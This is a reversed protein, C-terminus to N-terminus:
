FIVKMYAKERLEKIWSSYRKNVEDRYLINYIADRAEELRKIKGGRREVLNIIQIGSSKIVPDSVDGPSMDKIIKALEQDLQSAKFFGLDGGDEAGPGESFEKALKSFDEGNKLRLLIERAKQDLPHNEGQSSPNKERLFITALRVEENSTFDDKHKSYYERIEEERIIIRSKVELNILRIRELENKVNKRYLEYTLGQKELGAILDEQTVHSNRKINEIAADVEKPTVKIGLERIKERAIKEDILLDLIKSRIEIYGKEDQMKLDIPELGTVEKIKNNLEHLTIMDSNVIAVVRNLVKASVSLDCFFSFIVLFFFSYLVRCDKM